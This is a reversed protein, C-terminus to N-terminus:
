EPARGKCGCWYYKQRCLRYVLITNHGQAVATVPHKITVACQWTYNFTTNIVNPIIIM